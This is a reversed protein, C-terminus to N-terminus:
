DENPTLGEADVAILLERFPGRDTVVLATEILDFAFQQGRRLNDLLAGAPMGFVHWCRNPDTRNFERPLDNAEFYIDLDSEARRVGRAVSGYVVAFELRGDGDAAAIAGDVVEHDDNMLLEALRAADLELRAEWREDDSWPSDGNAM